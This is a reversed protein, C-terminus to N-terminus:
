FDLHGRLGAVFAFNGRIGDGALLQVNPTIQIDLPGQHRYFTEFVGQIDSTDSSRGAGLGFGVLDNERVNAGFGIVAMRDLDTQNGNSNSLKVFLSKENDDFHHEFSCSFGYDEEFDETSDSAWLMAQIHNETGDGRWTFGPQIATFLNGSNLDFDVQDGTKSAQVQTLAYTLDFHDNLQWRATAGAGFRPFAVTPNTSFVRNLFAKKAGRLAHSDLRSEVSLQGYRLEIKGEHFIHQIYLDPIEFGSDSFGDTTGLISGINGGLQAASNELLAHRHRLRFKLALLGDRAAGIRELLRSPYKEGVFTWHGAISLEGAGGSEGDGIAAQFLASYSLAMNLRDTAFMYKLPKDNEQLGALSLEETEVASVEEAILQTPQSVLLTSAATILGVRLCEFTYIFSKNFHHPNLTVVVYLLM